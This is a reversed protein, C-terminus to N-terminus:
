RGKGFRNEIFDITNTFVEVDAIEGRALAAEGISAAALKRVGSILTEGLAADLSEDFQLPETGVLDAEAALLQELGQPDDPAQAIQALLAHDLGLGEALISVVDGQLTPIDMGTEVLGREPCIDGRGFNLQVWFGNHIIELIENLEATRILRDIQGADLIGINNLLFPTEVDRKAETGYKEARWRMMAAILSPQSMAMLRGTEFAVALSVDERGDPTMIRLHDSVHALTPGAQDTVPRRMLPWPSFPGRYWSTNHSGLRTLHPLAAHGTEAVELPLHAPPPDGSDAGGPRTLCEPLPREYGGKATTGLLGVDLGKM